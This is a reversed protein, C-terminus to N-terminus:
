IYDPSSGYQYKRILKAFPDIHKIPIKTYFFFDGDKEFEFVGMGWFKVM